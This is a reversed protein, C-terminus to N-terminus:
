KPFITKGDWPCDPCEKEHLIFIEKEYKKLIKWYNQWAKDLDQCAKNWDERAKDRDQRAKIWDECAKNCDKGAKIVPAPLKGKVVKLLRLRLSQEKKLKNRKIFRIRNEISETLPELLIDHHVHWAFITKKM